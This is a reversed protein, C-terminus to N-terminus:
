WVQLELADFALQLPARAPQLRLGYEYALMRGHCETTNRAATAPAAAAAATALVAKKTSSGHHASDIHTSPMGQCRGADCHARLQFWMRQLDSESHASLSGSSAAAAVGALFAAALLLRMM